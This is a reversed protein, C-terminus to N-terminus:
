TNIPIEDRWSRGLVKILNGKTTNRRIDFLQKVEPDCLFNDVNEQSNFETVVIKNPKWNGEIIEPTVGEVIYKGSHKKLYVPIKEVYEMFAALNTIEFDLILYAKM